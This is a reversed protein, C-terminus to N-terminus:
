FALLFDQKFIMVKSHFRYHDLSPYPGINVYPDDPNTCSIFQFQLKSRVKIMPWYSIPKM